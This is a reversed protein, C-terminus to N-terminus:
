PAEERRPGPDHVADGGASASTADRGPSPAGDIETWAGTAPDFREVIAAERRLTVAHVSKETRRRRTIRIEERLVHETRVVLREEVVPIVLVDGEEWSELPGAVRRGVPVREVHVEEYVTPLELEQRHERVVKRVRTAHGTEVTRRTVKLQEEVVPIVRQGDSISADSRQGDMAARPPPAAQSEDDVFRAPPRAVPASAGPISPTTNM